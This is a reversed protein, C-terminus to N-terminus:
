RERRCFKEPVVPLMGLDMCLVTHWLLANGRQTTRPSVPDSLSSAAWSPSSSVLYLDLHRTPFPKTSQSLWAPSPLGQFEQWFTCMSIAGETNNIIIVPPTELSQALIFSFYFFSRIGLVFHRSYDGEGM